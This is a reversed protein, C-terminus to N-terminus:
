ASGGKALESSIRVPSRATKKGSSACLGPHMAPARCVTFFTTTFTRTHDAAASRGRAQYWIRSFVKRVWLSCLSCLFLTQVDETGEPHDNKKRIQLTCDVRPLSHIRRQFKM